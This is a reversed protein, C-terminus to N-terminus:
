RGTLWKIVTDFAKLFWGADSLAKRLRKALAKPDEDPQPQLDKVIKLAIESTFRPVKLHVFTWLAAATAQLHQSPPPHATSAATTAM